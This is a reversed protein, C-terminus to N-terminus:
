LMRPDTQRVFPGPTPTPPWPFRQEDAGVPWRASRYVTAGAADEVLLLLNGPNHAGLSRALEAEAQQWGSPSLRQDSEHRAHEAVVTELQQVRIDRVFWWTLTAFGALACGALLASLLAIRLRFSLKM